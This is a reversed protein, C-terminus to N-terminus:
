PMAQTPLQSQVHVLAPEEQLEVYAVPLPDEPIPATTHDRLGLLAADERPCDLPYAAVVDFAVAAANGVAPLPIRVTTTLHYRYPATPRFHAAPLTEYRVTRDPLRLRLRLARPDTIWALDAEVGVALPFDGLVLRPKDPHGVPATMTARAEKFADTAGCSALPCSIVYRDLALRLQAATADPRTVATHLAILAAAPTDGARDARARVLRVRDILDPLRALDVTPATQLALAHALLRLRALVYLTRPSQGLFAHELHYARGLLDAALARRDAWPGRRATLAVRCAAIFLGLCRGVCAGAPGVAALQRALQALYRDARAPATAALAFARPLERRVAPIVQALQDRRQTPLRYRFQTDCLYETPKNRPAPIQRPEPFCNPYRDFLYPVYNFVFAPFVNLLSPRAKAANLTLALYATQVPDDQSFERTLYQKEINLLREVTGGDIMSAQQRGVYRLCGYTTLQDDPHRRLGAILAETTALVCALDALRMAGLLRHIAQRITPDADAMVGFIIQLQESNLTLHHKHAMKTLSTIANLRVYDIEDNFIDVLYDVAQRAFDDSRLCLACLSHIAANRVERYEDELGHVFAGCAGSDLIRFEDAEVDLDGEAVPIMNRRPGHKGGPKGFAPRRRLHSMIKKSLTQSLYNAQVDAYSGLLVCAETRLRMSSDNVVDCIKVFADDVLRINEVTAPGSGAGDAKRLELIEEPYLRSVIWILRLASLRVYEYDDKLHEVCVPYLTSPLTHGALHSAYLLDLATRRVQPHGDALYRSLTGPLHLAGPLTVRYHRSFVGSLTFLRLSLLRVNAHYANASQAIRRLFARQWGPHATLRRVLGADATLADNLATLLPGTSTFTPSDPDQTVTDPTITGSALNPDHRNDEGLFQRLLVDFLEGGDVGPYVYLQTALRQLLSRLPARSEIQLRNLVANRAQIVTAPTLVPLRDALLLLGETCLGANSSALWDLLATPRTADGSPAAVASPGSWTVSPAPVSM